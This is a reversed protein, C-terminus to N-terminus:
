DEPIPLSLQRLATLMQARASREVALLPHPRTQRFRDRVVLGDKAVAARCSEARDAARCAVALVAQGAQDDVRYDTTLKSWLDRGATGLDAPPSPRLPDVKSKPVARLTM